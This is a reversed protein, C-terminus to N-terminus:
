ANGTIREGRLIMNSKVKEYDKVFEEAKISLKLDINVVVPKRELNLVENKFSLNEGLRDLTADMKIPDLTALAKNMEVIDKATEKAITGFNGSSVETLATTIGSFKNGIEEYNAFFSSTSLKAYFGDLANIGAQANFLNEQLEVDSLAQAAKKLKSSEEGVAIVSKSQGVLSSDKPISFM